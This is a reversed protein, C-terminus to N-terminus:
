DGEAEGGEAEDDNNEEFDGDAAQELKIIPNIPLYIEGHAILRRRALQKDLEAEFWEDRGTRKRKKPKPPIGDLEDVFKDSLALSIIM